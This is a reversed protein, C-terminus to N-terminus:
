VSRPVSSESPEPEMELVRIVEKLRAFSAGAYDTAEYRQIQQEKLGLRTALDKQSLGKAIRTQILAKPLSTFTHLTPIAHEGTRLADYEALESHLEELQSRVADIQAKRILPHVQEDAETPVQLRALAQEFKEAQAKTIRYQRENKIM